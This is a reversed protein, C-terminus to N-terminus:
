WYNAYWGHIGEVELVAEYANVLLRQYYGSTRSRRPGVVDQLDLIPPFSNLIWNEDFSRPCRDFFLEVLYNCREEICQAKVGWKPDTISPAKKKLTELLQEREDEDMIINKSFATECIRVLFELRKLPSWFLPHNEM